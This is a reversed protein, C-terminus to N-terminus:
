YLFKILPFGILCPLLLQLLGALVMILYCYMLPLLLSLKLPAGALSALKVKDEHDVSSFFKNESCLFSM